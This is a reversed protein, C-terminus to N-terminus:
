LGARLRRVDKLMTDLIADAKRGTPGRRRPHAHHYEPRLIQREVFCRFVDYVADASAGKMDYVLREAAYLVADGTVREYRNILASREAMGQLVTHRSVGRRRAVGEMLRRYLRQSERIQARRHRTLLKDGHTAYESKMIDIFQEVDMDDDSRLYHAPLERLIDRICFLADATIGDDIQYVGTRSTVREFRHLITRLRRLDNRLPAHDLISEGQRRDYGLKYILVRDKTDEFHRDFAKLAAHNKFKSLPKKRGTQIYDVMQAFTQVTYRAKNRQETITTSMRGIDDYRYAHHYLGFQRVSGYDLISGDMLVNDGDWDLWCFIYESEFVAAARAFNETMQALFHRYKARGTVPHHWEGSARQRAIYYDVGARLGDLRGQKLMAFLHAPRLLNKHARVNICTGDRFAIIALTRETAIGNKHFIDSMLAACVTDLLDAQGCGYSVSEDGTKFNTHHVAVAPSLCTAGTGCSSVDWVADRGKFYGNWISRGDGSTLGTKGPHQCQLYRTAMYKHPRIDRAPYRRKHELDYENIIVLSFTDLIARSLDDNLRCPHREGILGMEKALEFNFYFVRGGRRTRAAYDVYADPSVERWPHRGDIEHFRRYRM